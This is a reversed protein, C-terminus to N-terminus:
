LCWAIILNTNLADLHYVEYIDKFDMWVMKNSESAFDESRALIGITDVGKALQRMYWEYFKYMKPSLNLVLETWILPKGLQFPWRSEFSPDRPPEEHDLAVSIPLGSQEM